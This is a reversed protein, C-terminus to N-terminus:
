FHVDNVFYHWILFSPLIHSLIMVFLFFFHFLCIFFASCINNPKHKKRKIDLLQQLLCLQIACGSFYQTGQVDDNNCFCVFFLGVYGIGCTRDSLTKQVKIEKKQHWKFFFQITQCKIDITDIRKNFKLQYARKTHKLFQNTKGM